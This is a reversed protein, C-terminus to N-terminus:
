TFKMVLKLENYNNLNGHFRVKDCQVIRKHVWIIVVENDDECFLLVMDGLKFAIHEARDNEPDRIWGLEEIDQQDLYKVRYDVDSDQQVCYKICNRDVETKSWGEDTRPDEHVEYRFGVHFEEVSPTYYKNKKSM